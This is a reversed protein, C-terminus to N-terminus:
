FSIKAGLLLLKIKVMLHPAVVIWVDCIFCIMLVIRKAGIILWDAYLWVPEIFTLNTWRDDTWGDDTWWGDMQGHVLAFVALLHGYMILNSKELHWIFHNHHAYSQCLLLKIFNMYASKLHIFKVWYVLVFTVCQWEM